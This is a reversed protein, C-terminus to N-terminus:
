GGYECYAAAGTQSTEGEAVVEGDRFVKVRVSGDGGTKFVQLSVGVIRGGSPDGEREHELTQEWLDVVSGSSESTPIRTGDSGEGNGLDRTVYVWGWWAVGPDAQVSVSYEPLGDCGICTVLTFTLLLTALALKGLSSM